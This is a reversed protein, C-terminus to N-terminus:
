SRLYHASLQICNRLSQVNQQRTHQPHYVLITHMFSTFCQFLSSYWIADYWILDYGISDRWCFGLNGWSDLNMDSWRIKSLNVARNHQYTTCRLPKCTLTQLKLNEEIHIQRQKIHKLKGEWWTWLWLFRTDWLGMFTETGTPGHVPGRCQVRWLIDRNATVHM